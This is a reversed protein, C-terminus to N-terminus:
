PRLPDSYSYDKKGGRSTPRTTAQRWAKSGASGYGGKKARIPKDRNTPNWTYGIVKMRKLEGASPRPLDEPM